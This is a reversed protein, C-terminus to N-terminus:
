VHATHRNTVCRVHAVHTQLEAHAGGKKPLQLRMCVCWASDSESLCLLIADYMLSITVHIM